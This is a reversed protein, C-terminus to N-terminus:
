GDSAPTAPLAAVAQRAASALTSLGPFFGNAQCVEWLARALEVYNAAYAQDFLASAQRGDASTLPRGDRNTYRLLQYMVAPRLGLLAQRVGASLQPIDLAELLQPDSALEAVAAAGKGKTNGLGQVIVPGAGAAVPEVVLALLQLALPAGESGRHLQVTYTHPQGDRDQLTFTHEM